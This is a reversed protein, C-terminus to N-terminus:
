ATQKLKQEAKRVTRARKMKAIMAQFREFDTMNAKSQRKQLKKGWNTAMFADEIGAIFATSDHLSCETLRPM